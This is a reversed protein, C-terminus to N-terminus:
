ETLEGYIGLLQRNLRRIDHNAAVFARGADGMTARLSPSGALLELFDALESSSREAALYGSERDRVIEPIGAHRTAVVPVGCAQAELIAAPTGEIDGDPATVSPALLVDSAHLLGAVRDQAVCGLFRVASAIGLRRVRQELSRRLLGSGAITYRVRVHRRVLEAVADLGYEIGKKPVLRAVSLVELQSRPPRPGPTFRDLDVGLPHIRIREVPCGLAILASRMRTGLAIFLDGEAFLSSYGSRSRNRGVDYGYFSTIIPGALAGLARLRVARVGNPGFHSHVVDFRPLGAFPRSEFRQRMRSVRTSDRHANGGSSFASRLSGVSDRFRKLPLGYYAVRHKLDDAGAHALAAPDAGDAFIRMDCGLAALGRIQGAVFTETHSPFDYVIAATKM